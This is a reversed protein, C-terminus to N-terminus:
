KRKYKGRTEEEVIGQRCLELRGIIESKKGKKAVGLDACLDRLMLVTLNELLAAPPVQTARGQKIVQAMISQRASEVDRDVWIDEEPRRSPGDGLTQWSSRPQRSPTQTNHM